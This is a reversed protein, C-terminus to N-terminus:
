LDGKPREIESCVGEGKAGIPFAGQPNGWNAWYFYADFYRALVWRPDHKFDSWDYTVVAQTSSVEIHSSLKDVAAQEAETLPRDITQWEYSQYESM